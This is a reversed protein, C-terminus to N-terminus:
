KEKGLKVIIFYYVFLFAAILLLCFKLVIIQIYENEENIILSLFEIFAFFFIILNWILNKYLITSFIITITIFDALIIYGNNTITYVYVILLIIKILNILYKKLIM